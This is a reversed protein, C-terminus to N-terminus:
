SDNRGAIVNRTATRRGNYPFMVQTKSVDYLMTAYGFSM